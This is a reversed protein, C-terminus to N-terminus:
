PGTSNGTSYADASFGAADEGCHLLEAMFPAPVAGLRPHRRLYQGTCTTERPRCSQTTARIVEGARVTGFASRHQLVVNTAEDPVGFTVCRTESSVLGGPLRIQM